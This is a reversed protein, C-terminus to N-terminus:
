KIFNTSNDAFAVALYKNQSDGLYEIVIFAGKKTELKDV